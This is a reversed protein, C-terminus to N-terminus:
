RGGAFCYKRHIIKEGKARCMLSVVIEEVEAICIKGSMGCDPNANASTGRFILNGRTDAKAAKVIAVDANIAREMVYEVGDFVCTERPDSAIAAEGSRDTKYM